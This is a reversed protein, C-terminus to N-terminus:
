RTAWGRGTLEEGGPAAEAAALAVGGGGAGGGDDPERQWAVAVLARQSAAADPVLADGHWTYSIVHSEAWQHEALESFYHRPVDNSLVYGGAARAHEIAYLNGVHQPSTVVARGDAVLGHAAPMDRYAWSPLFAFCDHGRQRFWDVALAIGAPSLQRGNGDGGHTMAVNAGDVIVLSRSPPDIAGPCDTAIPHRPAVLERVREKFGLASPLTAALMRESRPLRGGCLRLMAGSSPLAEHEALRFYAHETNGYLSVRVLERRAALLRVLRLVEHPPFCVHLQDCLLTSLEAVGAWDGRKARLGLCAEIAALCEEERAPPVYSLMRVARPLQGDVLLTPDKTPRAVDKSLRYFSRTTRGAGLTIRVLERHAALLDVLRHAEEPSTDLHLKDLLQLRLADVGAWGGRKAESAILAEIAAVCEEERAPQARSLMRVARPQQGDVLLAPDETPLAEDEALRYYTRKVPGAVLTILALLRRTALVNILRFVEESPLSLCVKDCIQLQLADVGAWRGRRAESAILAEITAVCEEERAPPVRSHVRVARPLKGDVLLAPDETPLAEDEALRYFARSGRGTGLTIRALGRRTELLSVLRLVEETRVEVRLEDVLQLRLEGVGAWGGRRAESAILAEITAVCEEERSQPM